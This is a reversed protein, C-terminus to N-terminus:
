ATANSNSWLPLRFPSRGNIRGARSLFFSGARANTTFPNFAASLFDREFYSISIAFNAFSHVKRMFPREGNMRGTHSLSFSDARANTTLANFAASLFDQNFYSVLM